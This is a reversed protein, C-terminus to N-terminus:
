TERVKRIHVQGPNSKNQFNIQINIRKRIDLAIQLGPFTMMMMGDGQIYPLIDQASATRERTPNDPHTNQFRYIIRQIFSKM